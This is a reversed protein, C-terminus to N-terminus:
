NTLLEPEIGFADQYRQLAVAVYAPSIEVARCQRSLNEAAIITTGSGSFPDYVIGSPSCTNVIIYEFLKLPKENPHAKSQPSVGEWVSRVCNGGFWAGSKRGHAAIEMAPLFVHQGNLVTPNPKIWAVGRKTRNDWSKLLDSFQEDGCFATITHADDCLGIAAFTVDNATGKDWEGYDLRRLGNSNQSIGYPVDTCVAEKVEGGMVKDVVDGDTCDGCILRHEQGETRSPLRWMQGTEVQWVKQLEDARSIQPEADKTEPPDYGEIDAFLDELENDFWLDGLDLGATVDALLVEPDFDLSVAGVRNDAYALMRAATDDDNLDLDERMVAVLQKGDTRVIVVDDLGIEGATEATKNGAIIRGNKDLLISRGAGYKSLSTELLHRGRETGKNANHSDPTLDSLKVVENPESM